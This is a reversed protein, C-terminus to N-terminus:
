TFGIFSRTSYFFGISCPGILIASQNGENQVENGLDEVHQLLETLELKAFNINLM